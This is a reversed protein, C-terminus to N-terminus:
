KAELAEVKATLEKVAKVLLPVLKSHDIGQIIMNGDYQMNIDGLAKMNINRKSSLDLDVGSHIQIKWKASIDMRDNARIWVEDDMTWAVKGKVYLYDDFIRVNYNYSM